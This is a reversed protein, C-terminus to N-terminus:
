ENRRIAREITTYLNETAKEKPLLAIAGANLMADVYYGDAHVSLGIVTINQDLAKIRRTAAIGDLKPMSIDMLVVTPQLEEARLVADEGDIAEGVVELTPHAELMGRLAHRCVANDEAILLRITNASAM